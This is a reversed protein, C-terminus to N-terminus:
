QADNLTNKVAVGILSVWGAMITLGGIPTLYTLASFGTIISTYIGFSFLATGVTFISGTVMLKKSLKEPINAFQVLAIGTILIAYLMNYRIATDLSESQEPTLDLFHDGAAGFVVSILGLVAGSFLLGNMVRGGM